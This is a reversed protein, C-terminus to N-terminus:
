NLTKLYNPIYEEMLGEFDTTYHIHSLGCDKYYIFIYGNGSSDEYVNFFDETDLNVFSYLAKDNSDDEYYNEFIYKM